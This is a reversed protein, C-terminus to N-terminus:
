TTEATQPLAESGARWLWLTDVLFSYGLILLGAAAISTSLPPTVTPLLGVILAVIQVVCITKRRLSPPLTARM